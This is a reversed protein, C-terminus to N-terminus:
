SSLFICPGRGAFSGRFFPIIQSAARSLCNAEVQALESDKSLAIKNNVHMKIQILITFLWVVLGLKLTLM